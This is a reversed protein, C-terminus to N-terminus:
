AVHKWHKRQVINCVQAQTIGFVRAIDKQQEGHAYRERIAIVQQETLKRQPHKEGIHRPPMSGRGKARMDAINDDNTGTLDEMAMEAKVTHQTVNPLRSSCLWQFAARWHAVDVVNLAWV